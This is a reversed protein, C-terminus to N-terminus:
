PNVWLSRIWLQAWVSASISTCLSLSLNFSSYLLSTSYSCPISGSHFPYVRHPSVAHSSGGNSLGYKAHTRTHSSAHTHADTHTYKDWGDRQCIFLAKCSQLRVQPDTHHTQPPLILSYVDIVVPVTLFLLLLPPLPLTTSFGVTAARSSCLSCELTHTNTMPPSYHGCIAMLSTHPSCHPSRAGLTVSTHVAQNHCAWVQHADLSGGPLNYKHVSSRGEEGAPFFAVSVTAAPLNCVAPIM